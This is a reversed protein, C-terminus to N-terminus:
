LRMKDMRANEYESDEGPYRLLNDFKGTEKALAWIISEGAPVIKPATQFVPDKFAEQANILKWGKSKFMDLLDGLFLANLLNYHMLITHKVSRGLVKRALDDYYQAREWMHSLYFDRYPKVDAAPDKALRSSLRDEIAWDSADITVHGNRYGHQELFTRVADRKAATDGEKLYPFRFLKQFRPYSRIIEDCKAIDATFVEATVKNSNLYKHSFSHNAILHGARDWERLLEKGKASEANKCAVFLAAKLNGHSRLTQLIARNREDPSLRLSKNWNFDDITIAIEPSRQAASSRTGGFGFAVAGMGLAKSFERRNM